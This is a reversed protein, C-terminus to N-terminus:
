WYIKANTIYRGRQIAEEYSNLYVDVRMVQNGYEDTAWAIYSGTDENTYTGLGEIEIQTGFPIGQPLAITRGEQVYTGSATIGDLNPTCRYDVTYFSVEVLIEEYTPKSIEQIRQQEELERQKRLEEQQAKIKEKERIKTLKQIEDKMHLRLIKFNYPENTKSKRIQKQRPRFSTSSSAEFTNTFLLCMSVLTVIKKIKNM